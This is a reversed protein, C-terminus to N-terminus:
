VKRSVQEPHIEVSFLGRIYIYIYIYIYTYIYIYLSLSLSLTAYNDSKVLFLVKFDTTLHGDRSELYVPHGLLFTGSKPLTNRINFYISIVWFV